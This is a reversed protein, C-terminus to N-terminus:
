FPSIPLFIDYLMKSQASIATALTYADTPNIVLSRLLTCIGNAFEDRMDNFEFTYEESIHEVAGQLMIAGDDEDEDDDEKEDDDNDGDREADAAEIREWTEDDDRDSPAAEVRIAKGKKGAATASSM